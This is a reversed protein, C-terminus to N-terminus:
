EEDEEDEEDDGKLYKIEVLSIDYDIEEEFYEKAATIHRQHIKCGSVVGDGQRIDKTYDFVPHLKKLFPMLEDDPLIYRDDDIHIKWLNYKEIIEKNSMKCHRNKQTHHEMYKLLCLGFNINVRKRDRKIIEPNNFDKSNNIIKLPNIEDIEELKPLEMYDQNPTYRNNLHTLIADRIKKTMNWHRTGTNCYHVTFHNHVTKLQQILLRKSLKKIKEDTEFKAGRFYRNYWNEYIKYNEDNTLKGNIPPADTLFKMLYFVYNHIHKTAKSEMRIRWENRIPKNLDVINQFNIVYHFYHRGIEMARNKENISLNEGLGMDNALMNFYGSDGMRKESVTNMSTFRRDDRGSLRVCNMYNTLGIINSRDNVEIPQRFKMEINTTPDTILTKLDGEISPKSQWVNLEKLILLSKFMRRSNFKGLMQDINSFSATYKRGLIRDGIYDFFISKGTGQASFYIQMRKSKQGLLLQRLLTMNYNYADENGDCLIERFHNDINKIKEYDVKFRPGYKYLWGQWENYIDDALPIKSRWDPRYVIDMYTKKKFDPSSAWLKFINLSKPPSGKRSSPVSIRMNEYRKCLEDIDKFSMTDTMNDENKFKQYYWGKKIVFFFHLNIYELGLDYYEHRLIKHLAEPKFVRSNFNYRRNMKHAFKEFEDNKLMVKESLTVNFGTCTYIKDQLKKFLTNLADQRDAKRRYLKKVHEVNLMIGDFCLVCDNDIILKYEKLAYYMVELIKHEHEQVYHSFASALANYPKLPEIKPNKQKEKQHREEKRKRQDSTYKKVEPNEDIIEEAILRLESSLRKLYKKTDKSIKTPSINEDKCWNDVCGFYLLRIFLIKAQNRSCGTEEMITKLKEARNNVYQKLYKCEINHADCIQIILTPHCNDIDIDVYQKHCLAHRIERRTTALSLSQHPNLRGYKKKDYDVQLTNDSEMKYYLKRLYDRETDYMVNGQGFSYTTSQPLESYIMFLLMLRNIKESFSIEDLTTNTYSLTLDIKPCVDGNKNM